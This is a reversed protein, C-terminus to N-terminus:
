GAAYALALPSSSYALLAGAAIAVGYPIDGKPAMLRSVTDVLGGPPFQAILRISGRSPWAAQAHVAPAALLGASALLLSRRQMM